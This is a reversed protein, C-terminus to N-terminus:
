KKSQNFNYIVNMGHMTIDLDIFDLIKTERGFLPALGGTAVTTM